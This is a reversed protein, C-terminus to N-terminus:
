EDKKIENIELSKKIVDLGANTSQVAQAEVERAQRALETKVDKLTEQRVTERIFDTVFDLAASEKTQAEKGSLVEEDTLPRWGARKAMASLAYEIQEPSGTYKIIVEKDM